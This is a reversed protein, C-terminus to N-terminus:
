KLLLFEGSEEFKYGHITEAKLLYKYTDTNQLHGNVNGDWGSHVDNTSFVIKGWRNFVKLDFNKINKSEFRFIDNNSDGNPTFASPAELYFDKIVKVNFNEFFDFCGDKTEVIYATTKAPSVWPNNCKTCSINYKPSWSYSVNEVSTQILFQIREGIYISTDGRPSRSLDFPRNVMIKKSKSASCGYSNTVLATYTIASAPRATINFSTTSSLGTSPTWKIYKGTNANVSLKVPYGNACIISDGDITFLPDAIASYKKVLTDTCGSTEKAVLRVNYDGAKPFLINSLNFETSTIGNEIAWSWSDSYKSKNVFNLKVSYCHALTSDSTDFLAQVKSISLTDLVRVANCTGNILQISPAIKGRSTYKHTVPNVTSTSGDGFFWKWSTLNKVSDIRFSVAGNYCLKQPTVSVVAYPGNILIPKSRSAQCGNLTKVTLQALFNGSRTFTYKVDNSSRNVLTHSDFTWLYDVAPSGISNNHIFRVTDPFCYFVTDSATFNADAKEVSIYNTRTLTNICGSKSASLSVSFQGAKNYTHTSTSASTTGDGFDWFLNNLSSDVPTFTVTQGICIANDNAQFNNNIGTLHVPISSSSSCQYADYVTLSPYYTRGITSSYDHGVNISNSNDSARDGFNWTWNVITTDTSTNKFNVTMGPVCGSTPDVSFSGSPRFIHVVRRISDKCGNDALVVLKITDTGKSTYIHDWNTLFTRRPPSDDGFYWLFGENNCTSIYDKSFSANLLVTDGACFIIDNVSFDAMVKRVKIIKTKALTCGSSNDTATLKVTYDGRSPFTYRLSDINNYTATDVNWLLSTSSSIGSRFHYVLSSDCRFSETFSGVPGKIKLINEKVTDSICGNYDVTLRIDKFGASDTYVAFTTDPRANLSLDFLNASRFRWMRVLSNDSLNGTLHINGGNCLEAPSVEFDPKLKEGAVIRVTHSTDICNGSKIIESINYVGPKSFTYNVPVKSTAVVSDKGIKYTYSDIRFLSKSSDSFSVQLPVCGSVKDPMFRAVPLTITVENTVSDFCVGSNSVVVKVPLKVTNIEHNYLQQYTEAQLDKKTITYATNRDKSILKGSLYWSFINANQSSNKLNVVAPLSCSINSDMSFDAKVLSKVFAVSISDTCFSTKGYVLKVDILGSGKVQYTLTNRGNITTIITGETVIWKYDPLNGNSYVFKYTGDCIYSQDIIKNKSDYVTLTGKPYGVNIYSTKTLSDSCGVQDTAKLRVSFSGTTNYVSSNSLDTSTKGNGFDWKYTLVSSGTSFNTFSVNLPPSCAFTDSAAFNIKPKASVSILKDSEFVSYCGNKDTVKLVVDYLGTSYYTYQVSTGERTDGNRFDWATNIIESEGPVSTSTFKVVLPPCGTVKDPTFNAVPGVSVTIVESTSDRTIGDTVKLTVTYKGAKTYIQEKVNYDTATIVAGLGFDWTYSIGTGRTSSNTFRVVAPACNSTKTYSFKATIGFAPFVLVQLLFIILSYKSKFIKM